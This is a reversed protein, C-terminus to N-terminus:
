GIPPTLTDSIASKQTVSWTTVMGIVVPKGCTPVAPSAIAALTPARSPSHTEIAIRIDGLTVLRRAIRRRVDPEPGGSRDRQLVVPLDGYTTEGRSQMRERFLGLVAERVSTCHVVDRGMKKLVPKVYKTPAADGVVGQNVEVTVITLSALFAVVAREQDNEAIGPHTATRNWREATDKDYTMIATRLHRVVKSEDATLVPERCETALRRLRSALTKLERAPGVTLGGTTVLRCLPKQGLAFWRNFLHANLSWGLRRACELL